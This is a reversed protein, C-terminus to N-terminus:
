FCSGIMKLSIRPTDALRQNALGQDILRATLQELILFGEKRQSLIGFRFYLESKPVKALILAYGGSDIVTANANQILVELHQRQEMSGSDVYVSESKQLLDVLEGFVRSEVEQTFLAAIATRQESSGGTISALIQCSGQALTKSPALTLPMLFGLASVLITSRM